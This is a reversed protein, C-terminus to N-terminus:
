FLRRTGTTDPYRHRYFRSAVPATFSSVQNRIQFTLEGIFGPTNQMSIGMSKWPRCKNRDIGFVEAIAAPMHIQDAGSDILALFKRRHNGSVIDIEVIPRKTFSVDRPLVRHFVADVDTVSRMLDPLKESVGLVRSYDQSLAVWKNEHSVDLILSLDIAQTLDTNMGLM